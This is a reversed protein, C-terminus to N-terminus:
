RYLEVLGMRAMREFDRGLSWVLGGIDDAAAAILLDSLAFHHGGDAAHETWREVTSWMEENVAIVPLGSLAKRVQAREQPSVVSLLQIRVPVPLAVEDADLLSTLTEAHGANLGRLASIWVSTDVIIL